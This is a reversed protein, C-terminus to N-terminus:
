ESKLNLRTAMTLRSNKEDNKRYVTPTMNEYYDSAACTASPAISAGSADRQLAVTAGAHINMPALLTSIFRNLM